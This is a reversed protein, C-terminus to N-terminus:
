GVMNKYLAGQYFPVNNGDMNVVALDPKGDGDLNVAAVAYPFDGTAYDIKPAFSFNGPTSNNKLISVLDNCSNPLILDM